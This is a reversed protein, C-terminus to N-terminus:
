IHILSLDIVKQYAMKANTTDKLEEEYLFGVMFQAQYAKGSQPCESVLKQYLDIAERHQKRVQDMLALQFLVQDKRPDDPYRMLFMEFSKDALVFTTSDSSTSMGEEFLEDATQAMLARQFLVQDRRPDDPYRKLFTEFRKDALAFTTSDSSASMGEEFLEDATQRACGLCVLLFLTCLCFVRKRIVALEKDVPPVFRGFM